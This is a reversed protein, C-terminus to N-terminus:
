RYSVIFSSVSNLADFELISQGQERVHISSRRFATLFGGMQHLLRSVPDLIRKPRIPM